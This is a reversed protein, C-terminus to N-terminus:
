WGMGRNTSDIFPMCGESLLTYAIVGLCWVDVQPGYPVQRIIEPAVYGISGCVESCKQNEGKVVSLGFDIIKIEPQSAKLTILVNECKLDRHIIGLGHLYQLATAMQAIISNIFAESITTTNNIIYDLLSGDHIYELIIFIFNENEIYDYMKIINKHHCVRLIDIERRVLLLDDSNMKSKIRKKIAVYNNTNKHIAKMIISNRGKGIVDLAKYNNSISDHLICQSLASVWANKEEKSECYFILKEKLALFSFGLYSQGKYLLSYYEQEQMYCYLLSYVCVLVRKNSDEYFLIEKGNLVGWHKSILNLKFDFQHIYGSCERKNAVPDAICEVEYSPQEWYVVDDRDGLPKALNTTPFIKKECNKMSYLKLDSSFTKMHKQQIANLAQTYGFYTSSIFKNKFPQTDHQPLCEVKCPQSLFNINKPLRSKIDFFIQIIM